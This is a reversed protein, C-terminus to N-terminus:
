PMSMDLLMRATCHLSRNYNEPSGTLCNTDVGSGSPRLYYYNNKKLLEFFHLDMGAQNPGKDGNLDIFIESCVNQTPIVESPDLKIHYNYGDCNPYAGVIIFLAGDNTIFSAVGDRAPRYFLNNCTGGSEKYCKYAFNAPLTTLSGWTGKKLISIQSSLDTIFNDVSSTDISSNNVQLFNIAQLLASYEKKLKARFQEVGIYNTLPPIVMMAVVGIIGLTILVEALTFSERKM